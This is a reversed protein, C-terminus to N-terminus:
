GNLDIAYCICNQADVICTIQCKSKEIPQNVENGQASERENFEAFIMDVDANFKRLVDGLNYIMENITNFKHDDNQM